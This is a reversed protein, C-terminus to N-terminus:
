EFRAHEVRRPRKRRTQVTMHTVGVTPLWIPSLTEIAPDYPKQLAPKDAVILSARV